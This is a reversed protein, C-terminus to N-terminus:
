AANQHAAPRPDLIDRARLVARLRANLVVRDAERAHPHADPHCERLLQRWATRIDHDSSRATLSTAGLRRLLEIATLEAPTRPKPSPAQGHTDPTQPTTQQIAEFWPRAPPPSQSASSQNGYARSAVTPAVHVTGLAGVWAPTLISPAPRSSADVYATLKGVLVDIFARSASM